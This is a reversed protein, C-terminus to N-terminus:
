VTVTVLVPPNAPVTPRLALPMGLPADAVRAGGVSVNFADLVPEVCVETRLTAM